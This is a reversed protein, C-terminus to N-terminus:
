KTYGIKNRHLKNLNKRNKELSNSCTYYKGALKNFCNMPYFYDKYNINRAPLDLDHNTNIYKNFLIYNCKQGNKDKKINMDLSHNDKEGRSMGTTMIRPIGSNKDFRSITEYYTNTPETIFYYDNTNNKIIKKEKKMENMKNYSSSNIKSNTKVPFGNTAIYENNELIKEKVINKKKKIGSSFPRFSPSTKKIIDILLPNANNLRKFGSKLRSQVGDGFTNILNQDEKDNNYNITEVCKSNEFSYNLQNDDLDYKKFRQIDPDNINYYSLILQKKMNKGYANKKEENYKGKRLKILERNLKWRNNKTYDTNGDDNGIPKMTKFYQRIHEKIEASDPYVQKFISKMLPIPNKREASIILDQKKLILNDRKLLEYLKKEKNLSKKNQNKIVRKLNNENIKIKAKLIPMKNAFTKFDEKYYDSFANSFYFTDEPNFKAYISMPKIYNHGKESKNNTNRSNIITRSSKVSSSTKYKKNTRNTKLNQTVDKNSLTNNSLTKSVNYNINNFNNNTKKWFSLGKKKNKKTNNENEFANKGFFLLMKDYPLDVLLKPSKIDNSDDKETLVPKKYNIRTYHSIPRSNNFLNQWEYLGEIDEEKLNINILKQKQANLREIRKTEEEMLQKSPSRKNKGKSLSDLFAMKESIIKRFSNDLIKSNSINEESEKIKEDESINHNTIKNKVTISEVQSEETKIISPKGTTPRTKSPMSSISKKLNNIKM